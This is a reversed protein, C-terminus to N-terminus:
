PNERTLTSTWGCVTPPRLSDTPALTHIFTLPLGQVKAWTPWGHHIYNNYAYFRQRSNRCNATPSAYLFFIFYGARAAGNDNVM